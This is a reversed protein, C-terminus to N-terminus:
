SNLLSVIAAIIGALGGTGFIGLLVKEELELTKVKIKAKSKSNSDVIKLLTSIMNNNDAHIDHNIQIQRSFLNQLEQQSVMIHEIGQKVVDLQAAINEQEAIIREILTKLQIILEKQVIRNKKNIDENMYYGGDWM